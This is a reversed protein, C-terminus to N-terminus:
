YQLQYLFSCIVAFYIENIQLIWNHMHQAMIVDFLVVFAICITVIIMFDGTVQLMPIFKFSSAILIFLLCVEESQIM